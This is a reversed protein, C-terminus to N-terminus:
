LSYLRQGNDDVILQLRRSAEGFSVDHRVVSDRHALLEAFRSVSATSWARRRLSYADIHGDNHLIVEEGEADGQVAAVQTASSFSRSLDRRDWMVLGVREALRWARAGGSSDDDLVWMEMTSTAPSVAVACLKGAGSLAVVRSMALGKKEGGGRSDDDWPPAEMLRFRERATDFVLVNLRATSGSGRQVMWHLNGHLSVSRSAQTRLFIVTRRRRQLQMSADDHGGEEEKELLPVERWADDGVRRVRIATAVFLGREAGGAAAEGAAHLLHFRMTAPQAYAGIIVGHCRGRDGAPPAPVTACARTLPNWLVFERERREPQTGLDPGFRFFRSTCEVDVCVVGDWSGVVWTLAHHRWPRSSSAPIAIGRPSPPTTHVNGRYWRGRFTDLLLVKSYRWPKGFCALKSTVKLVAAPRHAAHARHFTPASVASRWAKCVALCRVITRPPLRALIDQIVEDLCGRSLWRTPTWPRCTLHRRCAYPRKKNHKHIYLNM